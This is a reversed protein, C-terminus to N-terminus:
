KLTDKKERQAKIKMFIYRGVVVFAIVFVIALVWGLSSWEPM